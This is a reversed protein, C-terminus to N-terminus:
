QTENVVEIIARLRAQSQLSLLRQNTQPALLRSQASPERFRQMFAALAAPNSHLNTIIIPMMHTPVADLGTGAAIAKKGHPINRYRVNEAIDRYVGDAAPLTSAAPIDYNIASSEAAEYWEDNAYAGRTFSLVLILLFISTKM